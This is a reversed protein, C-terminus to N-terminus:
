QLASEEAERVSLPSNRSIQGDRRMGEGSQLSSSSKEWRSGEM